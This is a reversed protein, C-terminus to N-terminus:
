PRVVPTTTGLGERGLTFRQRYAGRRIIHKVEQVEYFGDYLLGAGRLGVLSRPQLVAGYRMVDLEGSATLVRDMSSETEAQASENSHTTDRTPRRFQKRRLFERKVQWDPLSALPIRFSGFTRVRSKRNSRGDQVTGEVLAPALADHQFDISDINSHFGMNVSLAKQPVGTRIPPGWYATSTLPAPGPSIYFRYAHREALEKLYALDTGQQVPTRQSPLPPDM